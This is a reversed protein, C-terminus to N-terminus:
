DGRDRSGLAQFVSQDISESVLEVSGDARGVNAGGPHYSRATMFYPGGEAEEAIPAQSVDNKSSVWALEDGRMSNPPELTTFLVGGHAPNYYRGRSDDAKSDEVLRIESVLATNSTGDTCKALKVNVGGILLGDAKTGSLLLNDKYTNYFPSDTRLKNEYYSGACGVYNGSFGQTATLNGPQFTQTKPSLRDSPCVFSRVITSAQSFDFASPYPGWSLPRNMFAEFSDSLSSEEVMSLIDQFWCRRDFKDHSADASAGIGNFTGYPPATGHATSDLYNYTGRPLQKRASEYNLMSLAVQKMNNTCQGRRAAERAAQVAPLLLAVLIGIIAIVVLLEVLTFADRFPAVFRSGSLNGVSTRNPIRAIMNIM